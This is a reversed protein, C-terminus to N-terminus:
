HIYVYIYVYMHKNIYTHIICVYGFTFHPRMLACISLSNLDYGLEGGKCGQARVNVDHALFELM